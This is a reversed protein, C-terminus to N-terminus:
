EDHEGGIVVTGGYIEAVRHAVHEMNSSGFAVFVCANGRFHKLLAAGSAWGEVVYRTLTPDLTNGLPLGFGRIAGFSQKEGEPSIAQMAVVQETALDRVPVVICDTDRGVLRGSVRTRGAGYAHGLGKRSAYPHSAVHQDDRTARGWVDLAYARTNSAQRQRTRARRVLGAYPSSDVRMRRAKLGGKWGCHHCYWTGEDVNVALCPDRPKKRTHSCQPCTTRTEGIAGVPLAIGIDQFCLANRSDLPLWDAPRAWMKTDEM